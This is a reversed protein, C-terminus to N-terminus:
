KNKNKKMFYANMKSEPIMSKEFVLMENNGNWLSMDIPEDSANFYQHFNVLHLGPNIWDVNTIEGVGRIAPYYIMDGVKFKNPM